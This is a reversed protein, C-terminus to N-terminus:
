PSHGREGGGVKGLASGSGVGVDVGTGCDWDDGAAGVGEGSSDSTCSITKSWGCPPDDMEQPDIVVVQHQM